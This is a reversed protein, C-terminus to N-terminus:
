GRGPWNRVGWGPATRRGMRRRTMTPFAELKPEGVLEMHEPMMPEPNLDPVGLCRSCLGYFRGAQGQVQFGFREGIWAALEGLEAASLLEKSRCRMCVLEQEQPEDCWRYRRRRGSLPLHAILKMEELIELTRYVTARGIEPSRERVFLYIEEATPNTDIIDLVAETVVRRQPTMKYDRAQFRLEIEQISRSAM